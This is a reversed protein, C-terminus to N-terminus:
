ATLHARAQMERLRSTFERLLSLTIEPESRLMKLFPPRSLRLCLMDTKAVVTASREGGDILSMEGFYAGPGIRIAPLGSGRVISAEGELIVFFDDGREGKRVISTGPSFRAERTLGAIKRVHRKPVTSFFPLDALVASWARATDTRRPQRIDDGMLMTSQPRTM